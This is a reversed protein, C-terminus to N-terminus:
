LLYIATKEQPNTICTVLTFNLAFCIAFIASSNPVHPFKSPGVQPCFLYGYLVYHSFFTVMQFVYPDHFEWFSIWGM